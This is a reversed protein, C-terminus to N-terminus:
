CHSAEGIERSRTDCERRHTGGKNSAVGRQAWRRKKKADFPRHHEQGHALAAARNRPAQSGVSNPEPPMVQPAAGAGSVPAECGNQGQSAVRENLVPTSGWRSCSPVPPVICFNLSSTFTM